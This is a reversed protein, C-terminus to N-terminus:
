RWDSEIKGFLKNKKEFLQLEVTEGKKKKEIEEDFPYWAFDWSSEMEQQSGAVRMKLLKAGRGGGKGRFNIEPSAACNWLRQYTEGGAGTVVINKGAINIKERGQDYSFDFGYPGGIEITTTEGESVTYSPAGKSPLILAKMMQQRKGKSVRGACLVYSGRPVEIGKTGGAMVDYYCREFDKEGKVILWDPKIGGKLVKVKLTGTVVEMPDAVIALGAREIQLKYWTGGIEMFESWPIARKEAGVLVSDADVQYSDNTTGTYGWRLPASGYIGDLNDDLIRIPTEGVMGTVSGAPAIYISMSEDRPGLDMEFGQYNDKQAGVTALFAVPRAEDGTGVMVQVPTMKGKVPIDLDAVGDGDSDIKVDLAGERVVKPSLDGLSTLKGESGKGQLYIFTWMPYLDDSTYTPREYAMIDEVVEFTTAVTIASGSASEAVAPKVKSKEPNGFGVAELEDFRQKGQHYWVDKLEINVRAAAMRGYGACANKLDADKKGRLNEDNCVANVFWCQSAMYWDGLQEFSEAMGKFELAIVPFDNKAKAKVAEDYAAFKIRYTQILKRRDKKFRADLLSFYEYEIDVFKTDFAKKWATRLGEILEELQDTPTSSIGECTSIIALVADTQRKQVMAAMEDYAQIEMLKKFKLKFDVEGEQRVVPAAAASAVPDALPRPPSPVAGLAGAALGLVITALLPAKM